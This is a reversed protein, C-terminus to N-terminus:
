PEIREIDTTANPKEVDPATDAVVGGDHRMRCRPLTRNQGEFGIRFESVAGFLIQRGVHVDFDSTDFRTIQSIGSQGELLSKWFAEKGIGISSIVGLGTVVVRRGNVM